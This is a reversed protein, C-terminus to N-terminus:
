WVISNPNYRFTFVVNSPPGIIGYMSRQVFDSVWVGNGVCMSIHGHKHYNGNADTCAGVVCIDGPQGAQAPSITHWGNAPLIRIYDAASGAAMGWPAPLGGYNLAERVNKACHGCKGKIYQPYAKSKIYYCAKSVNFPTQGQPDQGQGKGQGANPLYDAAAYGPASLGMHGLLYKLPENKSADIRQIAASGVDSATNLIFQGAGKLAGTAARTLDTGQISKGRWNSTHMANYDNPNYLEMLLMEQIIERLESERLVYKKGKRNM